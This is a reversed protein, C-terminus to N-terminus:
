KSPMDSNHNVDDRVVLVLYSGDYFHPRGARPLLVVRSFATVGVHEVGTWYWGDAINPLMKATASSSERTTEIAVSVLERLKPLRWDDYGCLKSANVAKVYAETNCSNEEMKTRVCDGSTSDRYGIWGGNTLPNSDYPTYTWRRDRLGGDLTKVEWMLGTADDRVCAWDNDNSGLGASALLEAGSNAIKTFPRPEDAAAMNSAVIAALLGFGAATKCLKRKM